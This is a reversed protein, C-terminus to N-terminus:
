SSAAPIVEEPLGPASWLLKVIWPATSAGFEAPLYQLTARAWIKYVKGKELTIEKSVRQEPYSSEGWKKVGCDLHFLNKEELELVGFGINLIFIIQHNGSKKPILEGEWEVLACNMEKYPRNEKDWCFNIVPDPRRIMEKAGGRFADGEIYVGTVKLGGEESNTEKQESSTLNLIQQELNNLKKELANVKNTTAKFTALQEEILQLKETLSTM